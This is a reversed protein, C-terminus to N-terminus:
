LDRFVPIITSISDDQQSPFRGRVRPAFRAPSQHLDPPRLRPADERLLPGFGTFYAGGPAGTVARVLPCIKSIGIQTTGRFFKTGHRSSKKIEFDILPTDLFYLIGKLNNILRVEAM